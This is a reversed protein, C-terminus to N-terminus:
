RTSSIVGRCGLVGWSVGRCGVAGFKLYNKGHFTDKLNTKIMQVGWTVLILLQQCGRCCFTYINVMHGWSVGRCGRSLILTTNSDFIYKHNVISTQIGWRM